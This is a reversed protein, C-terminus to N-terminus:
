SSARTLEIGIRPPYGPLPGETSRADQPLHSPRGSALSVGFATGVSLARYARPSRMGLASLPAMANYDDFWGGLQALV